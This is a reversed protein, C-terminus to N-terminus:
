RRITYHFCGTFTWDSGCCECRTIGPNKRRSVVNVITNSTIQQNIAAIQGRMQATVVVEEGQIIAPKLRIYKQVDKTKSFDIEIVQPEYGVYSFKIIYIREPIGVIRFQGEIDTAAGLSTGQVIVNVGILTEGTTSDTVTGRLSAQGFTILPIFLALFLIGKISSLARM